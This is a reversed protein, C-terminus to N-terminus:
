RVPVACTAVLKGWDSIDVSGVLRSMLADIRIAGPTWAVPGCPAYEIAPDIDNSFRNMTLPTDTLSLRRPWGYSKYMSSAISSVVTDDVPMEASYPRKPPPTTLTSVLDPLLRKLPDMRSVSM